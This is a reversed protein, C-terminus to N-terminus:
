EVVPTGYVYFIEPIVQGVWADGYGITEEFEWVVTKWDPDVILYGSDGFLEVRNGGPDSEVAAAAERWRWSV